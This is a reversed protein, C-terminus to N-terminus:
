AFKSDFSKMFEDDSMALPNFSQGKSNSAKNRSPSAAQKKRNRTTDTGEVKKKPIIKKTPTSSAPEGQGFIKDGIAKYAEFDSIGSLRGLTREREVESWVKDFVGNSVHENIVKLLEPQTAIIQRSADDWQASVVDLTKTYTPSDKISDLVEDLALEADDVRYKTPQYNSNDDDDIDLPDIKSDKMLKKIADPNKKHLDILYDLKSEDLLENKELVKLIKLSPKLAAMKKAYNAGMQMLQIVDEPSDVQMDRGNAKFKSTVRNFFDEYKGTDEESKGATASSSANEETVEEEDSEQSKEGEESEETEDADTKRDEASDTKQDNLDAEASEESSDLDTGPNTEETETEQDREAENEEEESTLPEDSPPSNLFDEDSMGLINTNTSQSM